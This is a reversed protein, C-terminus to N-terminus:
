RVVASCGSGSLLLQGCCSMIGQWMAFALWSRAPPVFCLAWPMIVRGGLLDWALRTDVACCASSHWWDM